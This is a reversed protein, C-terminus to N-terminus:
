IDENEEGKEPEPNQEAELEAQKISIEKEVKNTKWSSDFDVTINTGFMANIKELAKVRNDYMTDITPMLIDDNLTAEAENIAERKMNFQSQLGIENYFSGKLYQISEIIDKVFPARTFEFSKLGDFLQKSGVIGYEEGNIIKKFFNEASKKTNDNDAQMIAPIRANYLCYKLSLEAETILDAYKCIVPMLGQYYNDNRMVVCQKDIELSANYKLAPNAVIALTPLYYPNPQGGLTGILSYLKDEVDKWISFGGVQLQTELDKSTITEPLGDYKFMRTTVNLMSTILNQKLLEKNDIVEKARNFIWNNRNNVTSM